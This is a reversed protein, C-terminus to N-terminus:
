FRCLGFSNQFDQGDRYFVEDFKSIGYECGFGLFMTFQALLVTCLFVFDKCWDSSASSKDFINKSSM